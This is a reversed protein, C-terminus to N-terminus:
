DNAYRSAGSAKVYIYGRVGSVALTAGGIIGIIIDLLLKVSEPNFPVLFNWIAGIPLVVGVVIKLTELVKTIVEKAPM